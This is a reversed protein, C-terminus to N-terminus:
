TDAGTAQAASEQLLKMETEATVVSNILTRSRVAPYEGAPAPPSHKRMNRKIDNAVQEALLKAGIALQDLNFSELVEGLVDTEDAVKNISPRLWPRPEMHVTGFELFFGYKVATGVWYEDNALNKARELTDQFENFGELDVTM